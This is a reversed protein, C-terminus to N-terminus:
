VSVCERTPEDQGGGDVVERSHGLRELLIGLTLPLVSLSHCRVAGSSHCDRTVAGVRAAVPSILTVSIGISSPTIVARCWRGVCVCM